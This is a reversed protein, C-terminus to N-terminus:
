ECLAACRLSTLCLVVSYMATRKLVNLGICYRVPQAFVSQVSSMQESATNEKILQEASRKTPDAEELQQQLYM